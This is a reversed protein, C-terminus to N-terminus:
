RERVLYGSTLESMSEMAKSLFIDLAEQAAPENWALLTQTPIPHFVNRCM